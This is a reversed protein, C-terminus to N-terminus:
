EEGAAAKAAAIEDETPPPGAAAQAAAADEASVPQGADIPQTGEGAARACDDCFEVSNAGLSTTRHTAQRDPHNACTPTGSSGAPANAQTPAEVVEGEMGEIPQSDEAPAESQEAEAPTAEDEEEVVDPESKRGRPM